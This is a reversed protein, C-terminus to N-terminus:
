RKSFMNKITAPFDPLRVIGLRPRTTSRRWRSGVSRFLAAIRQRKYWSFSIFTVLLFVSAAIVIISESSQAEFKITFSSPKCCSVHVGVIVPKRTV